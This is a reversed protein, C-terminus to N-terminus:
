FGGARGINGAFSKMLEQVLGGSQPFYANEFTRTNIGGLQNAFPQQAYGLAQGLGQMQMGGRLSALDTSLGRGAQALSNQFSSSNLAGSGTGAGAYREAIQPAIQQQFRELYPQEFAQQQQPNNSLLNQLYSSGAGYLPNSQIGQTLFQQLAQTM